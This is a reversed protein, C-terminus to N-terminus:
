THASHYVIPSLEVVDAPHKEYSILENNNGFIYDPCALLFICLHTIFM